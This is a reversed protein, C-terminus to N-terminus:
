QNKKDVSTTMRSTLKKKLHINFKLWNIKVFTVFGDINNVHAKLSNKNKGYRMNCVYWIKIKWLKRLKWAFFINFVFVLFFLFLSSHIWVKLLTLNLIFFKWKCKLHPKKASFNIFFWLLFSILHYVTFFRTQGCRIYQIFFLIIKKNKYSLKHNGTM